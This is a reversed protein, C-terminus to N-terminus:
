CMWGVSVDNEQGGRLCYNRYPFTVTYPRQYESLIRKADSLSFDNLAPIFYALFMVKISSPVSLVPM